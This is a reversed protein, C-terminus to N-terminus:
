FSGFGPFVLVLEKQSGKLCAGFWSGLRLSDGGRGGGGRRTPVFEARLLFFFFMEAMEAKIETISGEVSDFISKEDYFLRRKEPRGPLFFM